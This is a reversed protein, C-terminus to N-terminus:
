EKTKIVEDIIGYEATGGTLIGVHKLTALKAFVVKQTSTLVNNIYLRSM